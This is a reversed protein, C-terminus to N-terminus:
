DLGKVHGRPAHYVSRCLLSFLWHSLPLIPARNKESLHRTTRPMLSRPGSWRSRLVDGQPFAPGPEGTLAIFLPLQAEYGPSNRLFEGLCDFSTLNGFDPPVV